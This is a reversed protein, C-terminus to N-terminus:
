RLLTFTGSKSKDSGEWGSYRLTYFYVDEPCPQGNLKGDWPENKNNTEFVRQGWRNYIQISFDKVFVPVWKFDDNLGDGNSTFANPVYVIPSQYLLITNSQSEADFFTALNSLLREKAVIYYYFLGENLNLKDDLYSQISDSKGVQSFPNAPDARFVRYEQVGDTWGNYSQWSLKSMFDSASGKLVMSCSIGGIPGLNECTYKMIIYYCYSTDSVDVQLDSYKNDSANEFTAILEYNFKGRTGKYLFYKAFDKESSAPWEMEIHDNNAVTVYKLFQKKPLAEIQEFTSLTDSSPGFHGCKNMGRMFYTYNVQDYNPTNPDHFIRLGKQFITDIVKYNNYNVGRYVLYYDFYPDNPNTSDGYYLYTERKNVLNMCLLDTSNVLPMPIFKVWFKSEANRSIPCGNDFVYVTFPVAKGLTELECASQWCITTEVLRLGSTLTDFIPRCKYITDLSDSSIRMYISDTADIGRLKFCVKDPIPITVTDQLLLQDDITTVSAVPPNNPCITVTMQLELRSEGIKIGYRYEEVRISAVYVGPTSPNCSILGSSPNISLPVSGNIPASNSFGNRWVTTTYPGALATTTIPTNTSLSGNLPDIFSYRLEDGDDDTFNMNYQFLNNVCLLTNPNNTYRPTSNKVTKLNPVETYLVMAAAGPNVINTIIGNRCCRQWSFYYGNNSNYTNSNLVINKTYTGIHTCGTVINACNDGTFKLTDDNIKSFNLIFEAKKNNNLKDFIGITINNDFYAGPNGNECDRIVHATLLYNDGSIWKLEIMGGVLHTAGLLSPFIVCLILFLKKM